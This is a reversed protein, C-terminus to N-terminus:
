LTGNQRLFELCENQIGRFDGEGQSPVLVWAAGAAKAAVLADKVSPQLAVGTEVFVAQLRNKASDGGMVSVAGRFRIEFTWSLPTSAGSGSTPSLGLPHSGRLVGDSELYNEPSEFLVALWLALVDRYSPVQLTHSGLFEQPKCPSPLRFHRHLSGSDFPSAEVSISESLWEITPAFLFGIQTRRPFRFTGCYFFVCDCTGLVRMASDRPLCGHGGQTSVRHKRSYLVWPTGFVGQAMDKLSQVSITHTLPLRGAISSCKARAQASVVIGSEMATREVTARLRELNDTM